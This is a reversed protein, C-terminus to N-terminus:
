EAAVAHAVTTAGSAATYAALLGEATRDLTFDLARTRAATGLEERLDADGALREIARAFAVADDKPAFVAAGDWLERFTPIDSLVLPCAAHAAELVTLGFPEYLSPSVFIGAREMVDRVGTGSLEGVSRAHHLGVTEGTPSTLAGAMLVPWTVLAAARDLVRANKGEDWWRGAAVVVPRKIAGYPVPRVANPVVFVGPLPGYVAELADAHSRSPAVVADARLLGARTRSEQWSWGEPLDGGRVASWWTRVCSHSVAVVPCRVDLDAAQSPVNM